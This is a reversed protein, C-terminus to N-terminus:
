NGTKIFRGIITEGNDKKLELFYIGQPLMSVDISSKVLPEKILTKGSIGIISLSTFENSNVEFHIQSVCPNPYLILQKVISTENIGVTTDIFREVNFDWVGRGLTTFRATNKKSLFEISSYIQDPAIDNQLHFWQDEEKSFVFPGNETAAFLLSDSDNGELDYVNTVPLGKSVNKWDKGNNWSFHIPDNTYGNGAVYVHEPNSKSAYITAGTVEIPGPGTFFSSRIWQYGADISYYFDGQDTLAYWISDNFNSFNLASIYENDFVSNNFNFNRHSMEIEGNILEFEFIYSEKLPDGKKFPSVMYAKNSNKPDVVIPPIQHNLILSDSFIYTKSYSTDSNPTLFIGISDTNIAWITNGSDSSLIKGFDGLIIQNFLLSTDSKPNSTTKQLGQNKSGLFILSDGKCTLSSYYEGNIHGDLSINRISNFQDETLYLGGGTSVLHFESGDSKEFREISYIDKHFSDVPSTLYSQWNNYISWSNGSNRSTYVNQKGVFVANTDTQSFSYSYPTLVELPSNATRTWVTADGNSQYWFPAVHVILNLSDGIKGGTLHSEAWSLPNIYVGFNLLGTTADYEALSDRYYLFCQKSNHSITHIDLNEIPGYQNPDLSKIKNFSRAGDTSFYVTSRQAAVTIDWENCLVMFSSDAAQVVKIIKGGNALGELGLSTSWSKASDSSYLVKNTSAGVVLINKTSTYYEGLFFVDNVRAFPNIQRWKVQDLETEWIIGSSSVAKIINNNKDYTVCRISGPQNIAGLFSWDGKLKGNVIGVDHKSFNFVGSELGLLGISILAIILVIRRSNLM